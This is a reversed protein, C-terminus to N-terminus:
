SQVGEFAYEIVDSGIQRSQERARQAHGLAQSILSRLTPQAPGSGALGCRLQVSAGWRASDACLTTAQAILQRVILTALENDVRRLLVVFRSGDFRGLQDESRVKARLLRGLEALLEDAIEWRGSDNMARLGELALVAVAVPDGQRYSEELAHEATQLFAPRSLLDCVPDFRELSRTREADAVTMWCQTVLKEAHDLAARAAASRVSCQGATVVGLQQTGRQVVFCWDPAGEVDDTITDIIAKSGADDAVYSMGTTLVHGVIGRRASIRDTQVLPSADRIAALEKGNGAIRYVRVHTARCCDRLMARVFEAFPPWPDALDTNGALWDSFRGMSANFAAVTEHANRHEGDISPAFSVGRGGNGDEAAERRSLACAYGLGASMAAVILIIVGTM